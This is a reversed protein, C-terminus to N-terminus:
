QRGPDARDNAGPPTRGGGCASLLATVLLGITFRPLMPGFVALRWRILRFATGTQGFTPDPPPQRDLLADRGRLYGALALPVWAKSTQGPELFLDKMLGITHCRMRGFRM